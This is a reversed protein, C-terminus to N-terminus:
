KRKQKAIPTTSSEIKEEKGFEKGVFYAIPSVTAISGARLVNTVIDDKLIEPLLILITGITFIFVTAPTYAFAIGFCLFYILFFLSSYLGGTTFLLLFIIIILFFGSWIGDKGLLRTLSTGKKMATLLFFLFILFGLLWITYDALPTQQWIFVILFALSLICTDKIFCLMCM